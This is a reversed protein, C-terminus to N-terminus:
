FFYSDDSLLPLATPRGIYGTDAFYCGTRIDRSKEGLKNPSSPDQQEEIPANTTTMCASTSKGDGPTPQNENIEGSMVPQTSMESTTQLIAGHNLSM